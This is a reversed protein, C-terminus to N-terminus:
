RSEAKHKPPKFLKMKKPESSSKKKKGGAQFTKWSEVRNQRSEEFNQQWEKDTKAKEEAEIEQERKRKREEMDRKDLDRRKREMDAFLKMTLVYVQRKYEEPSPEVFEKGDKKEKKRREELALDTRGKAEEVIEMCRARSLENELIKWSRNVVEFAEQAREADDQNKDPHVLISLRKYKKKIDDLSTEPDVQLVEFPNLNFYSSGPRMLREIQQASTLVSDRKEIAKVETYFSDFSVGSEGASVPRSQSSSAM